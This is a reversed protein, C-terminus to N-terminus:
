GSHRNIVAVTQQSIWARNELGPLTAGKPHPGARRGGPEQTRAPQAGESHGPGAGCQEGECGWAQTGWVARSGLTQYICLLHYKPDNTWDVFALILQYQYSQIKVNCKNWDKLEMLADDWCVGQQTIIFHKRVETQTQKNQNVVVTLPQTFFLLFLLKFGFGVSFVAQLWLDQCICICIGLFRFLSSDFRIGQLNKRHTSLFMLIEPFMLKKSKEGRSRFVYPGTGIPCLKWVEQGSDSVLILCKKTPPM